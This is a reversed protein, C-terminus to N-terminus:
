RRSRPIARSARDAGAEYTGPCNCNLPDGNSSTSVILYQLNDQANIACQLDQATARRPNLLYWAPLGPRWRACASTAAASCGALLGERRTIRTMHRNEKLPRDGVASPSECALIFTSRLANTASTMGPRQRHGVDCARADYHEQLIQVAKAHAPHGPPYGM